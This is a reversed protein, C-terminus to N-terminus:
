RPTMLIETKHADHLLIKIFDMVDEKKVNDIMEKRSSYTDINYREFQWVADVWFGNKIKVLEGFSKLM